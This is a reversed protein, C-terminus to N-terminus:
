EYNLVKKAEDFVKGIDISNMCDLKECQERTCSSCDIEPTFVTSKETYPGWRQVSCAVIKPYFGIAYTGAAAAIHIPGTSNSIFLDSLKILAKLEKLSLKGALNKVKQNVVLKECLNFENKSGTILLKVKELKSIMATLKIMKDAPLDVASGGSGPHVIVLKDDSNIENEKLIKEVTEIEDDEVPLNFNINAPSVEEEIGIKKLLNVNYELEHKSAYKRHEFVRNNFLFSYWRYGSGIRNNIGSLFMILATTLTPYVVICTDFNFSKVQKVNSHLLLKNNDEKLILVDDISPHNEVLHKTYNRLAFTIRCDPFHKKVIGALPLSLIVDGIRDTRVILLNKPNIM